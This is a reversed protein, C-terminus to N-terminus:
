KMPLPASSVPIEVLVSRIKLPVLLTAMAVDFPLAVMLMPPILLTTTTDDVPRVATPLTVPALICAVPFMKMPLVTKVLVNVTPVRVVGTVTGSALLLLKLM